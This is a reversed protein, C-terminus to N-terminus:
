ASTESDNPAPGPDEAVHRDEPKEEEGPGPETAAADGAPPESASGSEDGLFTVTRERLSVRWSRGDAHTVTVFQDADMGKTVQLSEPADVADIGADRMIGLAVMREIEARQEATLPPPEIRGTGNCTPCSTPKKDTADGTLIEGKGRCSSCADGADDTTAPGDGNSPAAATMAANRAELEIIAQVSPMAMKVLNFVFGGLALQENLIQSGSVGRAKSLLAIGILHSPDIQLSETAAPPPDPLGAAAQAVKEAERQQRRRAARNGFDMDKM